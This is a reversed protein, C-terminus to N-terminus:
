GRHGVQEKLNVRWREGGPSQTPVMDILEREGPKQNLKTLLPTLDSFIEM